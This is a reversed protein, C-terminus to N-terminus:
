VNVCIRKPLRIKSFALAALPDINNTVESSSMVKQGIETILELSPLPILSIETASVQTSGNLGRFYRDYFSSNYLVALGWAEEEKLRGKPRYIYNVHNELGFMEYPYFRSIFPAAVLRRAEEKTSFRRLLVYNENPILLPLSEPSEEIYQSKERKYLPWVIEMKKVNHLWLLPAYNGEKSEKESIFKKARFAVVPGTSIKLGYKDLSGNWSNFKASIKEWDEEPIKLIKNESNIDLISVLPMKRKGSQKIDKKGGSSSIVITEGKINSQWGDERMAKLIINEQLVGDKEFADKRSDFLHIFEPKVLKFFKERFLRFYNGSTFSRPTIFVLEGGIRLISAAIAMFLFYINPQGYVIESAAMARADMKSLKFYPPNSICIDYKKDSEHQEFLTATKQLNHAYKLVFDERKIQFKFSVGKEEIYRRLYKVARELLCILEEDTEYSILEIKAPKEKRNALYECLDCGLVGTGAGADLVRIMENNQKIQSVMFDAIEIPTFYQGEEKRKEPSNKLCYLEGLMSAYEAPREQYHPEPVEFRINDQYIKYKSQKM